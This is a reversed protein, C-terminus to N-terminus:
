VSKSHLLACLDVNYAARSILRRRSNAERSSVLLIIHPNNVVQVTPLLRVRSRSWRDESALRCALSMDLREVVNMYISRHCLSFHSLSTNKVRTIRM